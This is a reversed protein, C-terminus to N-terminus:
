PWWFFSHKWSMHSYLYYIKHWHVLLATISLFINCCNVSLLTTSVHLFIYLLQDTYLRLYSWLVSWHIDLFNVEFCPQLTSVYSIDINGVIFRLCTSNNDEQDVLHNLHLAKIMMKQAEHLAVLITNQNTCDWLSPLWEWHSCTHWVSLFGTKSAM